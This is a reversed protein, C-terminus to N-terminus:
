GGTADVPLTLVFVSGSGLESEVRIGGGLLEALKQSIRLGLGTGGYRRTISADAQVFSGFVRTQQPPSMGIGTDSIAIEVGPRGAISIGRASLRIVGNETFKAANGALNLLIQRLKQPDSNLTISRSPRQVVFENDKESALRRAISEVEGLVDLLDFDTARVEMRGAEIKSIDLVDNILGLLHNGAGFVHRLDEARREDGDAEADDALMESYGLIANLPTRLEHSMNAIFTSKVQSAEEAEAKARVLSETVTSAEELARSKLAEYLLSLTSVVGILATLVMASNLAQEAPDLMPVFEHGTAETIWLGWVAAISAGAWALGWGRGAVMTAVMCVAALAMLLPTEAGRDAAAVAVVATALAGALLNGPLALGRGVRLLVLVLLVLCSCLGMVIAADVLDAALSYAIGFLQSALVAFCCAVTLRARRLEDQPSDLLAPSLFPAFVDAM